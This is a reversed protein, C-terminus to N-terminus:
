GADPTGGCCGGKACCPKQKPASAALAKMACPIRFYTVNMHEPHSPRLVPTLMLVSRIGAEDLLSLASEVQSPPCAVLAVSAGTAPVRAPLDALAYVPVGEVPAEDGDDGSFYAVPELGFQESPFVGRLARLMGPDGVAVFPFSHTLGLYSELAEYVESPDYGSGPRGEMELYSLDRRVTEDALGLEEAITRSTIRPAADDAALLEGLFCHYRSLRLVSAEPARSSDSM